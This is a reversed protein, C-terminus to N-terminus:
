AVMNSRYLNVVSVSSREGEIDSTLVFSNSWPHRNHVSDGTNSSYAVARGQIKARDILPSNQSKGRVPREDNRRNDDCGPLCM